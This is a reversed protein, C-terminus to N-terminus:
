EREFQAIEDLVRQAKRLSGGILGDEMAKALRPRSPQRSWRHFWWTALLGAVGIGTSIYLFSLLWSQGKADGGLGALVILFPVWLVWWSLGAFMGGRIYFSRLQALQKQIDLVPAAYDIQKILAMTHAGLIIILVGYVHVIVGSALLHFVARHDVWFSGAMLTLLAGAVIQALQEWFLPRLGSRTKDLKGDTYIRLHLANHQELRRDLTQWAQKFDDLEMTSEM